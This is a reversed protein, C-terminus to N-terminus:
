GERRIGVSDLTGLLDAVTLKRSWANITVPREMDLVIDLTVTM